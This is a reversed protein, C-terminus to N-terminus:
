QFKIWGINLGSWIINWCSRKSSSKPKFYTKSQMGLASILSTEPRYIKMNEILICKFKNLYILKTDGDFIFAWICVRWRSLPKLRFHAHPQDNLTFYSFFLNLVSQPFYPFNLTELPKIVAPSKTWQLEDQQHNCTKPCRKWHIELAISRFRKIMHSFINFISKFNFKHEGHLYFTFRSTSLM